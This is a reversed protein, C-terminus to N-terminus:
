LNISYAGWYTLCSTRRDCAIIFKRQIAYLKKRVEHLLNQRFKSFHSELIGDVAVQQYSPTQTKTKGPQQFVKVNSLIVSLLWGKDFYLKYILSNVCLWLSIM